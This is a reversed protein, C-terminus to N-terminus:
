DVRGTLCMLQDQVAKLIAAKLKRDDLADLDDDGEIPRGDILIQRQGDGPEASACTAGLAVLQDHAGQLLAVDAASHRAGAKGAVGILSRLTDFLAIRKATRARFAQGDAPQQAAAILAQAGEIVVSLKATADVSISVVTDLGRLENTEEAGDTGTREAALREELIGTLETIEASVDASISALTQLSATEASADPDVARVRARRRPTVRRSLAKERQFDAVLQAIEVRQSAQDRHRRARRTPADTIPRGDVLVEGDDLWKKLAARDITANPNAPISVLSLEILEQKEFAIGDGDPRHAWTIPVFGVSVDPFLGADFRRRVEDALASVGSPALTITGRFKNGSVYFGSVVGVTKLVSHDHDIQLPVSAAHVWGAPNITDQERDPSGDSLTVNYTRSDGAAKSIAGKFTVLQRDM